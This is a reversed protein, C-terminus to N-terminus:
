SAILAAILEGIAQDAVTASAPLIMRISRMGNIARVVKAELERFRADEPSLLHCDPGLTIMGDVHGPSDETWVKSRPWRVCACAVASHHISSSKEVVCIPIRM